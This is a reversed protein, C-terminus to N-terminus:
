LESALCDNIEKAQGDPKKRAEYHEEKTTAFASHSTRFEFHKDCGDLVIKM